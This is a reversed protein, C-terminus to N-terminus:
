FISLSWCHCMVAMCFCLVELHTERCFHLDTFIRSSNGYIKLLACQLTNHIRMASRPPWFCGCNLRTQLMFCIPANGCARFCKTVLLDKIGQSSLCKKDKSVFHCLLTSVLPAEVFSYHGVCKVVVHVGGVVFVVVVVVVLLHCMGVVKELPRVEVPVNDLKLGQRASDWQLSSLLLQDLTQYSYCVPSTLQWCDRTM